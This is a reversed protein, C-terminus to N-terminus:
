RIKLINSDNRLKEMIKDKMYRLKHYEINTRKSYEKLTIGQVYITNLLAKEEKNLWPNLYFAM